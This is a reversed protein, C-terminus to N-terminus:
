IRVNPITANYSLNGKLTEIRKSFQKIKDSFDM